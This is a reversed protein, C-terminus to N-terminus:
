AWSRLRPAHRPSRRPSSAARPSRKSRACYPRTAHPLREVGLAIALIQAESLGPAGEASLVTTLNLKLDKAYDPLLNKLNTLDMNAGVIRTGFPPDVPARVAGTTRGGLGSEVIRGKPDRRRTALQVPVARGNAACRARAGGRDVNRGVNMDTVSAFRIVGTPDVIFTARKAVGEEDLMGLALSLDKRLDALMPFPLGTLDKHDKRWALHVFESDVSAGLVQADRDAFDRTRAASSRSRRPACSRSTRRGSSCWWGNARTLTTRSPRSRRTWSKPCRLREILFQPFKDGVTLM